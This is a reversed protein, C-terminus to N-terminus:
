AIAGVILLRKGVEPRTPVATAMVPNSCLLHFAGEINQRQFRIETNPFFYNSSHFWVQCQSGQERQHSAHDLLLSV